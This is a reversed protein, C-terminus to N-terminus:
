GYLGIIVLIQLMIQLKDKILINDMKMLLIQHCYLDVRTSYHLCDM